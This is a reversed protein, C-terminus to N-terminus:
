YHNSSDLSFTAIFSLLHLNQFLFSVTDFLCQQRLILHTLLIKVLPGLSSHELFCFLQSGYDLFVLTIAELIVVQFTTDFVLCWLVRLFCSKFHIRHFDYCRRIGQLSHDQEMINLIRLVLHFNYKAM